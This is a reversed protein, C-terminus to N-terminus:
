HHRGALRITLQELISCPPCFGQMKGALRYPRAPGHFDSGGTTLLGLSDALTQLQRQMKRTHTPYYLELGDLNCRTLERILAPLVSMTSDVQGPHALVALGGMQHIMDITEAASYSFRSEWAPRNRGLYHRFAADFSDVVGKDVLLRAIHPRGTQGCQSVEKVEEETIAIGLNQLKQLIVANRQERGAQLPALWRQLDTNNPDIGYGLMHITREHLSTSIEVGSIVTLGVEAGLRCMEEVGEVTDHDTLSVGQLGNDVALAVLEAPTCSGDSYVSHTHLDICM